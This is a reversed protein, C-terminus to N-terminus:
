TAVVTLAGTPALVATFRTLAGREPGKNFSRIIYDFKPYSNTTGVSFKMVREAGCDSAVGFMGQVGTSTDDDFFGSMTIDSLQRVGVFGQEKWADGFAHVEQLIAEIMIGSFTDVQQSIDRFTTTASTTTVQIRVVDSGVRAM